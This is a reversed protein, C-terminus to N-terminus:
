VLTDDLQVAEWEQIIQIIENPNKAEIIKSKITPDNIMTQFLNILKRHQTSEETPELILLIFNCLLGDNANYDIGNKSVGLIAVINNVEVSTNYHYAIGRGVASNFNKEKENLYVNLKIASSLIDLNICHNLLEKIASTKNEADLDFLISKDTITSSLKM